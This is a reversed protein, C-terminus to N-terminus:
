WEGEQDDRASRRMRTVALSAAVVSGSMVVVVTGLISIWSLARPWPDSSGVWEAVPTLWLLTAVGVLSWALAVM